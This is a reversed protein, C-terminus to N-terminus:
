DAQENKQAPVLRLWKEKYEQFSLAEVVSTAAALIGEKSAGQGSFAAVFTDAEQRRLIVLDPDSEDLYYSPHLTWNSLM